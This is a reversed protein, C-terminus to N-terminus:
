RGPEREGSTSFSPAFELGKRSAPSNLTPNDKKEFPRRLQQSHSDRACTSM